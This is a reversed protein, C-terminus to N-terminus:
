EYVFDYISQWTVHWRAKQHQKYSGRNLQKGCDCHIREACRAASKQRNIRTKEPNMSAYRIAREKIRQKNAQYWEQQTRGAINKNVCITSMIIEGERRVLELKTECPYDEVLEVYASGHRMVEFSSMYPGIGILYRRYDQRHAAMRRSLHRKTSGIYELDSNDSCVKYIKGHSYSRIKNVM